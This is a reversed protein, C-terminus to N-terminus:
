KIDKFIYNSTDISSTIIFSIVINNISSPKELSLLTIKINLLERFLLIVKDKTLNIYEKDKSFDIDIKNLGELYPNINNPIEIDKLLPVLAKYELPNNKIKYITLLYFFLDIFAKFYRPKTIEELEKFDKLEKYSLNFAENKLEQRFVRNLNPILKSTSYALEKIISTYFNLIHEELYITTTLSTLDKLNKNVIFLNFNSNVLFNSTSKSPSANKEVLNSEKYLTDKTYTYSKVLDKFFLNPSSPELELSKNSKSSTALPKSLIEIDKSAIIPLKPIFTVKNNAELGKIISIPINDLYLSSKVGKNGKLNHEKNLHARITINSSSTYNYRICKFSNLNLELNPYYYRNPEINSLAEITNYDLLSIDLILRKLEEKSTEKLFSSHKEKLHKKISTLTSSISTKCLNCGLVKISTYYELFSPNLSITSSSAIDKFLAKNYLSSNEKLISNITSSSPTPSSM